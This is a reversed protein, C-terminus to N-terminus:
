WQPAIWPTQEDWRIMADAPLGPTYRHQPNQDLYLKVAYVQKVREDPTQVEKPTFEAQSAIYRVTAPLPQNPFADTYIRAPLNLRVKGIQKEPIYVKLYLQDLDVIDFLARGASVVEGLNAMRTTIVGAAPAKITLDNLTSQVELVAAHAQKLQAAVAKVKDQQAKIQERGLEAEALQKQAQVLGTRATKLNALAVKWALDAQESQLKRITNKQLLVHYREADRKKQRETAKAAELQAQAHVVGAKATAIKLAVSQTFVDLQTQALTLQAQIAAEAAQAQKLKARTQADDLQILPQGAQVQDGERALLAIVRGPWKSAVTYHDGEIRGNAQILGDPISSHYQKFWEFAGLAIVLGVVVMIGLKSVTKM